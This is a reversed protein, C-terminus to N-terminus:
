RELCLVGEGLRAPDDVRLGLAEPEVRALPHDVYRWLLYRRFDM